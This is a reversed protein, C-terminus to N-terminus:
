VVQLILCKLYKTEPMALLAPHDLAQGRSELLRLGKGSAQSARLIATKLDEESMHYSCSCSVLLGGPSLALLARRNADIYGKMAQEAASRTKAFAPPDLVVVDFTRRGLNKLFVIVDDEIFRCQDLNNLSANRAARAIAAGSQDVGITESAGASAAALSWAGDYCYLDLVTKGHAWRRLAERNDRQDLFFGTKQGELADLEFVLDHMRVQLPEPIRGYAVGKELPLNEITRAKTDNRYVLAQPKFTAILLERLREEILSMGLTTIQYVLVGAYRDIILGPLGDAEGYVLRLAEAGPYLEQRRLAAEALRRRFFEPTPTEGPRCVLRIAILTHPNLYGIGLELGKASVVQVWGPSLDKLGGAIENSFIWRHGKLLRRECGKLLHVTATISVM